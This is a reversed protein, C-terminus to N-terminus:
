IKIDIANVNTHLNVHELIVRDVAIELAGNRGLVPLQDHVAMGDCHVHLLVRRLNGPRGITSVVDDLGGTDECGEVLSLYARRSSSLSYLM